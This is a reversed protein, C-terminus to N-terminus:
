PETIRHVATGLLPLYRANQPPAADPPEPLGKFKVTVLALGVIEATNEVSGAFWNERVTSVVPL